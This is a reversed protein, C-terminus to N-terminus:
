GAWGAAARTGQSDSIFRALEDMEGLLGEPHQDLEIAHCYVTVDHGLIHHRQVPDDGKAYILHGSDLGFRVCYALMQYVDANPYAAAKAAKYKADMVACIQPGQRWLLDPRLAIRQEADLFRGRAQVEGRGGSRYFSQSLAVTVFDEFIRWMDFLFATAVVTGQGQETSFGELILKALALANKYRANLRTQTIQPVAAGQPSPTVAEFRQALKRLESRTEEKLSPLRLLRNVAGLLMQNEPIDRSYEDFVVQAPFSMGARRGIQSPVDLRGRVLPLAEAVTRYGQLLGQNTASRAFHAFAHAIAEHIGIDAGLIVSEDRWFDAKLSYSMMFFLRSIPVKPTIEIQSGAVNLVGVKRVNSLLWEGDTAPTVTAVDLANLAAAVGYPLQLRQAPSGETLQLPEIASM